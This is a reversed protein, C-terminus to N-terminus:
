TPTPNPNTRNAATKELNYLNQKASELVDQSIGALKAVQIGYSKKAAGAIAKHM